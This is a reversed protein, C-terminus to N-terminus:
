FLGKLKDIIGGGSEGEKGGSFLNTIDSLQFKGDPGSIKSIIDQINFSSDNPDNTKNVFKGVINPIVSSAINKASELNIGMGALKDTFGATAAQAVSSGEPNGGKFSDVLSSLNGSSLHQKIADVISGSAASIAAENQENPVESNNVIADQVNEKVLQNLNDLM